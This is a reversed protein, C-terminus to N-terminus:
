INLKMVASTSLSINATGTSNFHLFALPKRCTNYHGLTLIM